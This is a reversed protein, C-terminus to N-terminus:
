AVKEMHYNGALVKEFNAKTVLWGLSCGTFKGSAGTLFESGAAYTFFRTFWDIGDQQTVALREGKRPGKEHNASMVWAWRQATAKGNVGDRFLSRTVAPLNPLASEYADILADFPCPPVPPKKSEPKAPIDQGVPDPPIASESLSAKAEIDTDTRNQELANSKTEHLTVDDNGGSTQKTKQLARHKAVRAKSTDSSFQRKDWNLLNWSSDVFGKRIFLSKTEALEDAGIRLQFAIEDDQLTVLDNSCRMCMLMMYRRQMQETMMQVKPDTAFEQYMRFWQNAM